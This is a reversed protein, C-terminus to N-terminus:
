PMFCHIVGEAWVACSSSKSPKIVLNVMQGKTGGNKIRFCNSQQNEIYNAGVRIVALYGPTMNPNVKCKWLKVMYGNGLYRWQTPRNQVIKDMLGYEPCRFWIQM